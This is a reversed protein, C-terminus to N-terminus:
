LSGTILLYIAVGLCIVFYVIQGPATFCASLFDGRSATGPRESLRFRGQALYIFFLIMGILGVLYFCLVFLMGGAHEQAFRLVAAPDDASFGSPIAEALDGTVRPLFVGGYLNIGMHLLITYRIKETRIYIQAFLAGIFLVYFFQFFNQHFLAFTFASVFVAGARGLPSLQDILLKRFFLEEAVPAIIVVFLITMWINGSLLEMVQSNIADVGATDGLLIAIGTGILDGSIMFFAIMPIFAIIDRVRFPIEGASPPDSPSAASQEYWGPQGQRVAITPISRRILWGASPLAVAYNSAANIILFDLVGLERDVVIGAIAYFLISALNAIVIALILFFGLTSLDRRIIHQPM